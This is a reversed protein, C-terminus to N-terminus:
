SLAQELRQWLSPKGAAKEKKSPKKWEKGGHFELVEAALELLASKDAVSWGAFDGDALAVLEPRAKSASVNAGAPKEAEFLKRIEKVQLAQPTLLANAADEAAKQQEAAVQNEVKKLSADNRTMHGYGVATKSGVGLWALANELAEMVRSMDPNCGPRPAVSFLFSAKRTVLFPVPVPAHWDGPMADATTVQGVDDGKEYWKGMHPTMIDVALEPVAMPIADMFILEGARNDDPNGDHKLVSGFWQQREQESQDTFAEMWARVLGKVTSGPIYPTGLSHHWTFGNEVPHENGTGTVFHWDCDFCASTGQLARTLAVQRNIALEIAKADGCKGGGNVMTSTLFGSKAEPPVKTFGDTFGNFFRSFLLGYNALRNKGDPIHKEISHPHPYSM